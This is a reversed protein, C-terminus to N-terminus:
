YDKGKDYICWEDNIFQISMKSLYTINWVNLFSWGAFSNCMAPAIYFEWQLQIIDIQRYPQLTM